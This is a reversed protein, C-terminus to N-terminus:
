SRPPMPCSLTRLHSHPCCIATIVVESGPSTNYQWCGDVGNVLGDRTTEQRQEFDPWTQKGDERTAPRHREYTAIMWAMVDEVETWTRDAEPRVNLYYGMQLPPRDPRFSPDLNLQSPRGRLAESSGAWLYGHWHRVAAAM